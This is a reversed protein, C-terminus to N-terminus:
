TEDAINEEELDDTIQLSSTVAELLGRAGNHSFASFVRCEIAIMSEDREIFYAAIRSAVSDCHVLEM